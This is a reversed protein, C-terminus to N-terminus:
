RGETLSSVDFMRKIDDVVVDTYVAPTVERALTTTRADLDM